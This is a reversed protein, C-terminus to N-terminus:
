YLGFASQNIEVSTTVQACCRSQRAARIAGGGEGGRKKKQKIETEARRRYPVTHRVKDTDVIERGSIKGKM